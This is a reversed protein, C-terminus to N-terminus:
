DKRSTAALSYLAADVRDSPLDRKPDEWTIKPDTIFIRARPRPPLARNYRATRRRSRLLASRASRARASDVRSLGPPVIAPVPSLVRPQRARRASRRPNRGTRHDLIDLLTRISFQAKGAAQVVGGFAKVFGDLTAQQLPMILRKREAIMSRARAQARLERLKENRPFVIGDQRTVGEFLPGAEDQVFVVNEPFAPDTYVVLEDGTM